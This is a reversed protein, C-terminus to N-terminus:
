GGKEIELEFLTYDEVPYPCNPIKYFSLFGFDDLPKGELAIDLKTDSFEELYFQHIAKEVQEPTPRTEWVGVVGQYKCDNEQLIYVTKM